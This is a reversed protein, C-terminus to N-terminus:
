MSKKKVNMVNLVHYYRFSEVKDGKKFGKVNAGVTDIIGSIEHGMILPYFYSSNFFGRQIDSSCLGAYKIRVLCENKQIRPPNLYKLKITKNKELVAAKMFSNEKM